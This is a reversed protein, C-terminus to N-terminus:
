RFDNSIISPLVLIAVENDLLKSSLDDVVLIAGGTTEAVVNKM